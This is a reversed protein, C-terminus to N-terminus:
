SKFVDACLINEDEHFSKLRSGIVFHIDERDMQLKEGGGYWAGV